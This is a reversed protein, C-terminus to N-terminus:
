RTVESAVARVRAVASVSTKEYEAIIEAGLAEKLAKTDLRTSAQESITVAFRAGEAQTVGRRVMEAKLDSMKAECASKRANVEGYEDALAGDSMNHFNSM